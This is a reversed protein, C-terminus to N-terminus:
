WGPSPCTMNKAFEFDRKDHGPCGQIAGTGVHALVFDSIWIPIKEGTVHNIAYLDSFVGTKAKGEALRDLESKSLAEKVYKTVKPSKISAVLFYEPALVLFTAGM